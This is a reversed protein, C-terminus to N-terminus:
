GAVCMDSMCVVRKGMCVDFVWGGVRGGMWVCVDVMGSVWM